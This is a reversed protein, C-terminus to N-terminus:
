PMRRWKSVMLPNGADDKTTLTLTDQTVEWHRPRRLDLPSGPAAVSGDESTMYTLTRKPMDVV